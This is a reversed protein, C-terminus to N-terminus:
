HTEMPSRESKTNNKDATKAGYTPEPSIFRQKFREARTVIGPALVAALDVILRAPNWNVFWWRFLAAYCRFRDARKAVFRPVMRVYEWYLRATPITRRNALTTNHFAHRDKATTAVRRYRAPHERTKSLLKPLHIFRGLLALECLLARDSGHYSGLLGTQAFLDSRILGDLELCSHPRLAVSAFRKSPSPSDSDLLLTDHIEFGEGTEDILEVLSHCLVVSPDGDLIHICEKLYESCMLDDHSVWKFYEGRSLEFTRNHNPSAGLNEANRFYRIRHDRKAFERCIEETRDTSANDCIVLEFNEFSQALISELALAIYNEGNYVPFGISVRPQRATECM